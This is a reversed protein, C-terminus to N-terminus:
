ANPTETKEGNEKWGIIGDSFVNVNSYGAKTAREAATHSATCRPNYCYFVLAAKHDSPLEKATDYDGSSSLLVAGPIVGEESRTKSGNADFIHVPNKAKDNLLTKLEKYHILNFETAKTDEAFASFCVLLSSLLLLIIKKM